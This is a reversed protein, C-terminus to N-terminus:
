ASTNSKCLWNRGVNQDGMRRQSLHKAGLSNSCTWYLFWAKIVWFPKRYLSPPHDGREEIRERRWSEQHSPMHTSHLPASHIPHTMQKGWLGTVYLSWDRLLFVSRQTPFPRPVLWGLCFWVFWRSVWLGTASFHTEQSESNRKWVRMDNSM